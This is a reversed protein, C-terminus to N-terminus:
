LFTGDFYFYFSIFYLLLALLLAASRLSHYVFTDYLKQTATASFFMHINKLYCFVPQSNPFETLCKPL